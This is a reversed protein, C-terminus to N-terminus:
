VHARGIKTDASINGYFKSIVNGASINGSYTPLYSAVNANSYSAPLGTLLSGDGIFYPATLTGGITVGTNGTITNGNITINGLLNTVALKDIIVTDKQITFLNTM